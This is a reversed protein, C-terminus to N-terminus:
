RIGSDCAVRVTRYRDGAVFADTAPCRPFPASTPRTVLRYRGPHLRVTARGDSGTRVRAATRGSARAEIRIKADVARPACQPDPPYREVPCTPGATVRIHLGESGTGSATSAGCATCATLAAAVALM